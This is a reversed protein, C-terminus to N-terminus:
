RSCKMSALRDEEVCNITKVIYSLRTKYRTIGVIMPTDSSPIMIMIMMIMMIVVMIVMMMMMLIMMIIMMMM